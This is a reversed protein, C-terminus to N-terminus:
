QDCTYTRIARIWVEASRKTIPRIRDVKIMALDEEDGYRKLIIEEDPKPLFVRDSPYIKGQKSETYYVFLSSDNEENVFYFREKADFM